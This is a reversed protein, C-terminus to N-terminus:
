TRLYHPQSSALEGLDESAYRWDLGRHAKLEPGLMLTGIKYEVNEDGSYSKLEFSRLSACSGIAELLDPILPLDEQRPCILLSLRYLGNRAILTKLKAIGSMNLSAYGPVYPLDLELDRLLPLHSLANMAPILGTESWSLKQLARGYRTLWDGIARTDASMGAKDESYKGQLTLERLNEPLKL